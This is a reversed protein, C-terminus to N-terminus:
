RGPPGGAIGIRVVDGGVGADSAAGGRRKANSWSSIKELRRGVGGRGREGTGAHHCPKPSNRRKLSLSQASQTTQRAITRKQIIEGATQCAKQM